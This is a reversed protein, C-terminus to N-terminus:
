NSVRYVWGEVDPTSGTFTDDFFTRENATFSSMEEGEAKRIVSDVQGKKLIEIRDYVRKGNGKFTYGLKVGWDFGIVYASDGRITKPKGNVLLDAIGKEFDVSKVEVKPHWINNKYFTWLSFIAVIAASVGAVKLLIEEGRDISFEAM